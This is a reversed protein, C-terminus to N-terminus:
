IYYKKVYPSTMVMLLCGYDMTFEVVDGVNYPNDSASIDLILHDSSAGLISLKEDVPTLGNVSVDQRGLAVIARKIIGKDEFYPKGGFADMGINGKPVSPKEKIEVIEGKLTFCDRHCNEIFNGYATERGLVIAEGIRLQNIDKPLKENIVMYLTSSNGGSIVELELDYIEKVREKLAVLRGLNEEDPIVGGYCTLNTGLGVLKINPLKIIQAITELADEELVGERLDGLDIMLIVEHIRNLKNAAKSLLRITELESNLSVDSYKVVERSHSEMPIRLLMKKCEVDRIRRLNEIRSDGVMTIGGKIMASVIPRKACFVKTVGVVNVNRKKCMNAIAEANNTIKELNVVVCPYHTKM